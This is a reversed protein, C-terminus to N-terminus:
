DHKVVRVHGLGQAEVQYVGAPLGQLGIVLSSGQDAVTAQVQRGALDFVRIAPAEVTTWGSLVVADSTPNPSATLLVARPEANGVTLATCGSTVTCNGVTIQVSWVGTVQPTFTQSTQGAVPQGTACNIWQYSNAFANATLGNGSVAVTTDIAPAVTLVTGIISDCGLATSLTDTYTGSTSATGGGPLVLSDGFCIDVPNLILYTPNVSLNTTVISDCGNAAVLTSAYTGPVSVTNGGPLIYSDGACISAAVTANSAQLVNVVSTAVTGCGGPGPISDVYTGAQTIPSSHTPIYLTDGACLSYNANTYTYCSEGTLVVNDVLWTDSSASSRGTIRVKIDTVTQGPFVIECTSYGFTSQLGTTTPQFVAESAPLYHVQAFGTASYPWFSNSTTAGRIRMRNYFTTGGDTSIAVLVYDLDDPGGTTANLNMAALRFRLRVSDYTAPPVTINAFDVILGASNSTTEWARSNGIGIPSNPPAANAASTGSNYVVPGTFTWVPHGTSPAVEFDQFALTDVQQAFAYTTMLSCILLLNLLNKRM